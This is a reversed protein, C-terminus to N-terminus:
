DALPDFPIWEIQRFDEYQARTLKQNGQPNSKKKPMTTKKPQNRKKKTTKSTKM